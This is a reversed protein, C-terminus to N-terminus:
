VTDNPLRDNYSESVNCINKSNFYDEYMEFNLPAFKERSFWITHCVVCKEDIQPKIKYCMNQFKVKKMDHFGDCIYAYQVQIFPNIM